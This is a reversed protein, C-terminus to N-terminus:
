RSYETDACRCPLGDQLLVRRKGFWVGPLPRLNQVENKALFVGQHPLATGPGNKKSVAIQEAHETLIIIDAVATFPILNPGFPKCCNHNAQLRLTDAIEVKDCWGMNDCLYQFRERQCYFRSQM